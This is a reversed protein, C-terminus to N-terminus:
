VIERIQYVKDENCIFELGSNELIGTIVSERITYYFDLNGHIMTWYQEHIDTVQRWSVQTKEQSIVENVRDCPMGNLLINELHGYAAKANTEGSFANEKGFEYAVDCIDMIRDPHEDTLVTVVYALKNEVLSVREQLWGHINSEDIIDALEGEELTGYRDFKVSEDIWGKAAALEEIKNVLENQFKIKGFLWSHIPGLFASM